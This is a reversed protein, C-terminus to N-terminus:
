RYTGTYTIKDQGTNVNGTGSFKGSMSHGRLTGTGKTLKLVGNTITSDGKSDVIHLKATATGVLSGTSFFATVKKVSINVTGPKTSALVRLRYVVAGSGLLKDSSDGAYVAIPGVAHTPAFHVTGKDARAASAAGGPAVLLAAVAITALLGGVTGLSRRTVYHGKM